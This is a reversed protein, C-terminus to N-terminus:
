CDKRRCHRKSCSRGNQIPSPTHKTPGAIGSGCGTEPQKGARGYGGNRTAPAAPESGFRLDYEVGAGAIEDRIFVAYAVCGVSFGGRGPPCRAPDELVQRRAWDFGREEAACDPRCGYTQFAASFSTQSFRRIANLRASGVIEARSRLSREATEEPSAQCCALLGPLSAALLRWVTYGSHPPELAYSGTCHRAAGTM